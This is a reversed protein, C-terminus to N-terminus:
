SGLAFFLSLLRHTDGQVCTSGMEDLIQKFIARTDETVLEFVTKLLPLVYIGLEPDFLNLHGRIKKLAICCYGGGVLKDVVATTEQITSSKQWMQLVARDVLLLQNRLEATYAHVDDGRFFM